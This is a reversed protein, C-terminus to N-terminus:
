AMRSKIVVQYGFLNPYKRMLKAVFIRPKLKRMFRPPVFEGGVEIIEMNEQELLKTFSHMTFDHLHEAHHYSRSEEPFHGKLLKIRYKWWAMNPFSTIMYGDGSLLEKCKRLAIEPNFLHEMVETCVIYDFKMSGIKKKPDDEEIDFQVVKDYFPSALELSKESIDCGVAYFNTFADKLLMGLTGEGCGLDLINIKDKGNDKDKDESIMSVVTQLRPPIRIGKKTHVKGVSKRYEWYEEYFDKLTKKGM